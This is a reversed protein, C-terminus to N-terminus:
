DCSTKLVFDSLPMSCTKKYVCDYLHLEERYVFNCRRRIAHM